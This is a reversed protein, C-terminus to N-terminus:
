KSNVALLANKMVARESEMTYMKELWSAALGESQAHVKESMSNIRRLIEESEQKFKLLPEIVHEIRQRTIDQFQMSVMISSIDRALSDTETKLGDLSSKAKNMAGDIVSLAEEVARGADLSKSMNAEASKASKEHIGNMDAEIKTILKKIKDAASNSRDSLKRVEDAVVSFGKGAEGARAAEIAANLALLNTQQAIYEIEEITKKISKTDNAIVSMDHQTETASETMTELSAMVESFTNRTVNVLSDQGGSSGLVSFASSANEAQKRARGIIGMFKDGMDLAAQETQQTVETLQATLVPILQVNTHLHSTVPQVLADVTSIRSDREESTKQELAARFRKLMNFVIIVVASYCFFVVAIRVLRDNILSPFAILLLIGAISAKEKWTHLNYILM